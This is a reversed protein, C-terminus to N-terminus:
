ERREIGNNRRMASEKGTSVTDITDPSTARKLSGGGTAAKCFPLFVRYSAAKCLSAEYHAEGVILITAMNQIAPEVSVVVGM